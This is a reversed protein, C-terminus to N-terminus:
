NRLGTSGFGGVGRQTESLSSVEKWKIQDVKQLVLQAIRDGHQITVAEHGLNVILIMVEGRFDSDITGPANIVTLGQKISLGSRPRVQIEFGTPIGFSLGTPIARREQPKLIVPEGLCAKIDCGASGVTMYQPVEAQPNTKKVEVSIM